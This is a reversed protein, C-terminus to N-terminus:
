SVDDALEEREGLAGLEDRVIGLEVEAEHAGFEDCEAM